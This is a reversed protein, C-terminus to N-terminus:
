DNCVIIPHKFININSLKINKNNIALEDIMNSLM